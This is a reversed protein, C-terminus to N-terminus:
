TPQLQPQADEFCLQEEIAVKLIPDTLNRAILQILGVHVANGLAQFAAQRSVPLAHDAPFGQLKLGEVRTIFRRQPGIIPIQTTTMSVLAPITSMRKARVGSPRFQLVHEWLDRVEGHCNWELKRLSPPLERLARLWSESFCSEHKRFWERNQRIFRVKWHPFHDRKAYAPLFKLLDERSMDSSSGLHATAEFLGDAALESPLTDEFPYTAQFEDGWIPFSPLEDALPLLKLLSNWHDVCDLQRESLRTELRDRDNLESSQQLLGDLSTKARRNPQPLVKVPASGLVAVAFFRERSHPFGFHHPSLLGMGGSKVHETAQVQYGLAKLSARAAKWTEGEAHQEFNGVNELLVYRPRHRELVRIVEHFLTGRTDLHGNQFGSKSFPQCPFGACLLDHSPVRDIAERIDGFTVDSCSPFNTKYIERLEYDLESAFVCTHGLAELARHFGGLGAFLDVFRLTTM